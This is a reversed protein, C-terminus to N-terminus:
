CKSMADIANSVAGFAFIPEGNILPEAEDPASVQDHQECVTMMWPQASTTWEVPVTSASIVRDRGVVFPLLAAGTGHEEYDQM